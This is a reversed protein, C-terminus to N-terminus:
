KATCRASIFAENLNKYNAIDEPKVDSRECFLSGVTKKDYASNTSCLEDNKAVDFPCPCPRKHKFLDRCQKIILDATKKDATTMQAVAEFAPFVLMVLILVRKMTRDVIGRAGRPLYVAVGRPVLVGRVPGTLSNTEARLM